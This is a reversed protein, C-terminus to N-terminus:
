KLFIIVKDYNLSNSAAELPSWLGLSCLLFWFYIVLRIHPFAQPLPAIKFM